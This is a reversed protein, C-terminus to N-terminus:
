NDGSVLMDKRLQEQEMEQRFKKFSMTSCFVDGNALRIMTQNKNPHYAVVHDTNVILLGKELDVKKGLNENEDPDFGEPFWFVTLELLM